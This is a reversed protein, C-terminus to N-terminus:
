ASSRPRGSASTSPAEVNLMLSVHMISDWGYVDASTTEETIVLADDEFVDRFIATLKTLLEPM